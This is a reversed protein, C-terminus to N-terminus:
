NIVLNNNKEKRKIYANHRWEKLKEPNTEKIKEMYKKARQKVIESNNDYYKKHRSNNTYAKLRDELIKNKEKLEEIEYSIKLLMLIFIDDKYYFTYSLM